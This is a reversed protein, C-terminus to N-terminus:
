YLSFRSWKVSKGKNPSKKFQSKIPSSPTTRRLTDNPLVFALVDLIATLPLLSKKFDSKQDNDRARRPPKEGACVIAVEVGCECRIYIEKM